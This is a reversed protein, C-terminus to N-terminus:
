FNWQVELKRDRDVQCRLAHLTSPENFNHTGFKDARCGPFIVLRRDTLVYQVFSM